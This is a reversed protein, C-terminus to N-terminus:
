ANIIGVVIGNAFPYPKGYKIDKAEEIKIERWINSSSVRKLFRQEDFIKMEKILSDLYDNYGLPITLVVKGKKNLM